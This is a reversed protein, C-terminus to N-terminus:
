IWKHKSSIFYKWNNLLTIIDSINNCKTNYIKQIQNNDYVFNTRAKIGKSKIAQIDYVRAALEETSYNGLYHQKNNIMMLVQWKNGNKSVGRYKSSRKKRLLFNIKKSKKISRVTSYSNLLIKNIYVIKNNKLVKIENNNQLDFNEKKIKELLFFKLNNSHNNKSSSNNILNSKIDDRITQDKKNKEPYSNYIEDNFNDLNAIQKNIPYSQPANIINELESQKNGIISFDIVKQIAIDRQFTYLEKEKKEMSLSLSNNNFSYNQNLLDIIKRILDDNIKIMKQLHNNIEENIEYLNKSYL